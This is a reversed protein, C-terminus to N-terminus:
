QGPPAVTVSWGLPDQTAPAASIAPSASITPVTVGQGINFISSITGLANTISSILNTAPLGATIKAILNNEAGYIDALSILPKTFDWRWTNQPLPSTGTSIDTLDLMAMDSYVYAPTFVVYTGGLNNHTDLVSKLSTMRSQKMAWANDEKMPTMMVMSVNIPNRIIANAAVSVNAFPYEAVSQSVLSGGPAPQFIAFANEFSWDDAIPQQSTLAAFIEYNLISLIPLYGGTISSAIGNQLWIPTLQYLLQIQSIM